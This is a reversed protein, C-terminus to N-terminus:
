EYCEIELEAILQEYTTLLNHAQITDTLEATLRSIVPNDNDVTSTIPQTYEDFTVTQNEIFRLESSIFQVSWPIVNRILRVSVFGDSIPQKPNIAYPITQVLNGYPSPEFDVTITESTLCSSSFGGVGLPSGSVTPQQDESEYIPTPLESDSNGLCGVFFNTFFLTFVSFIISKM